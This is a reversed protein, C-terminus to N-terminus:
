EGAWARLWDICGRAPKRRSRTLAAAIQEKTALSQAIADEAAREIYDREISRLALDVITRSASTM